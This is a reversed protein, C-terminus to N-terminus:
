FKGAEYHGSWTWFTLADMVHQVDFTSVKYSFRVMVSAKVVYDKKTPETYGLNHMACMSPDIAVTLTAIQLVTGNQVVGVQTGISNTTPAPAVGAVKVCDSVETAAYEPALRVGWLSAGAEILAEFM